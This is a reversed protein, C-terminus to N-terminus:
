GRPSILQLWRNRQARIWLPSSGYWPKEQQLHGIDIDAEFLSCIQVCGKDEACGDKCQEYM